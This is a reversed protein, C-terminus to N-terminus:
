KSVWEKWRNAVHLETLEFSDKTAGGIHPTIVINKMTKSLHLLKSDKIFDIDNEGSLVDLSVNIEKESLISILDQENIVEGRSTNILHSQYRMRSLVEYNIMGSTESNLPVHISLVDVTEALENLTSVKKFLEQAQVYPDYFYIESGLYHCVKAVHNGIRGLGVIGIKLTNFNRGMFMTRDWNGDKTSCIAQNIRRISNLILGITLESTSHISNLFNKSEPDRLCMILINKNKCYNVDIHNLGTTPSIILKLNSFQNLFSQDLKLSLRCVITEVENMGEKMPWFFLKGYSKYLELAKSSYNETELILVSKNKMSM